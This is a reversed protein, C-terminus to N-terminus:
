TPWSRPRPALHALPDQDELPIVVGPNLRGEPDFREKVSRFERTWGPGWIREMFPARLRGDGHEGALTGGLRAVLDVVDELTRRVREEWDTETVPVLPNVHVNGDGAHGFVVADIDARALIDHLGDLYEGLRAPPVVCDEIFQTSVLGRQAERAIMPSAGHRLEWLSRALTPDASGLGPGDLELGVTRARALGIEVEEPSGEFELLFLTRADRALDGVLPDRELGAIEIFRRGLFECAVAGLEHAELALLSVDSSANVPLLHVGRAEPRPALRLTMGTLIALTGESGVLLDLLERDRAYRDLAYGSSNKRLAPWPPAGPDGPLLGPQFGAGRGALGLDGPRTGEAGDSTGRTCRFPVGDADVGEVALVWRDMAGHGFSRAGAANNAVMGGLTAWPASSPLCPLTLGRGSAMEEVRGAVVGSGVRITGGGERAPLAPRIEGFGEQLSVVVGPGLNGGPMGTGGGRPVLPRGERRSWEVLRILDDADRPEAWSLPLREPLQFPGSIRAASRHAEPGDLWRGRFGRPAGGDPIPTM